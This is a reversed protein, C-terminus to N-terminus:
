IGFAGREADGQGRDRPLRLLRHRDRRILDVFKEPCLLSGRVGNPATRKTETL